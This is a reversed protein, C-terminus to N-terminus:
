PRGLQRRAQLPWPTASAPSTSARGFEFSFLGRPATCARRCRAASAPIISRPRRLSARRAAARHDLGAAEHAKMRTPLRACAACCCGRRSPRSSAASIPASRRAPDHRDLHAPGAVVGAVTDSHGGIYKSASHVVLDVGLTAPQQFVPTAWSNDIMSVVDHRARPPRWRAAPGADGHDLEDPKRSLPAQAGPLAAEVAHATPARRCLDTTVGWRKLLTEFLRYADPYVHRVCVIRDGPAVFALVAASIAAMGSAFGIADDVGELAAM